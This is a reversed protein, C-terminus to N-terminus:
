LILTIQMYMYGGKKHTGSSCHRCPVPKSELEQSTRFYMCVPNLMICIAASVASILTLLFPRDALILVNPLLPIYLNCTEFSICLCQLKSQKNPVSMIFNQWYPVLIQCFNKASMLCSM